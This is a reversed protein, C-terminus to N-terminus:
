GPRFRVLDGRLLSPVEFCEGHAAGILESVKADRWLFTVARPTAGMAEDSRLTGVRHKGRVATPCPELM